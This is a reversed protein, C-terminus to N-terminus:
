FNWLPLDHWNQPAGTREFPIIANHPFTELTNVLVKSGTLDLQYHLFRILSIQGFLRHTLSNVPEMLENSIPKPKIDFGRNFLRAHHASLNRLVNLSKLTSELQPATMACLCAIAGRVHQPCFRYLNSLMGWDMIEVAVWVPLMGGYRTRHHEVFDERSKKLADSYKDLWVAHQTKHPDKRDPMRAVANLQEPDLHVLPDVKGLHYGVLTRLALEVPSLSTFVASRLRADFEYLDVCLKLSMGRQFNDTPKGSEFDIIRASHWYGSLRYYNRTALVAVAQDVEEIHM